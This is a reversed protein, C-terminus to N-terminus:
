GVALDIRKQRRVTWAFGAVAVLMLPITSPEPVQLQLLFPYGAAPCGAVPCDSFAGGIAITYLGTFQPLVQRLLPDGFPGPAPTEDDATAIYTVSDFSGFPDFLSYDTGPTITGRYLSLALDLNSNLRTGQISVVKGANAFFSYFQVLPTDSSDYFSFPGVSGTVAAGNATISGAYTIPAGQAPAHAILIVAAISWMLNLRM